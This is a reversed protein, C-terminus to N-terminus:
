VRGNPVMEAVGINLNPVMEAVGINLSSTILVIM